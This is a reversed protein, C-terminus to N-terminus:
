ELWIQSVYFEGGATPTRSFLMVNAIASMDMPRRAPAAEVTALAVRVTTRTAAPVVVPLNLRDGSSWDHHADLIRLTFELARDGPNTIDLALVAHGRWDPPPESLELAPRSGPEFRLRLAKGKGAADPWRPPLAARALEANRARLFYLDAAHEAEALVPFELRRTVYGAACQLPPWALVALAAFAIAMVVATRAPAASGFTREPEPAPVRVGADGVTPRARPEAASRALRCQEVLVLLALGLAAGTADRGVDLLAANRGPLFIQIVETAAGLVVAVLFAQLCAAVSRAGPRPRQMLALLVAIGLFAAGHGGKHVVRQWATTGPLSAFLVAALLAGILILGLARNIRFV